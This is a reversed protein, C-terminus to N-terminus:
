LGAEEFSRKKGSQRSGVQDNTAAFSIWKSPSERLLGYVFPLSMRSEESMAVVLLDVFDQVLMEECRMKRRGLRNLELFYGAKNGNSLPRDEGGGRTTLSVNELTVNHDRLVHGFLERNRPHTYGKCQLSLYVLSTNRELHGCLGTIDVPFPFQLKRLQRKELLSVAARTLENSKCYNGPPLSLEKMYLEKLSPARELMAM